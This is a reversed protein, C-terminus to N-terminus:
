PARVILKIRPRKPLPAAEDSGSPRDSGSQGSGRDSNDTEAAEDRKRKVASRTERTSAGLSTPAKVAGRRSVTATQKAHSSKLKKTSEPAKARSNASAAKGKQCKAKGGAAMLGRQAGEERQAAAIVYEWKRPKPPAPNPDPKFPKMDTKLGDVSSWYHLNPDLEYQSINTPREARPLSSPLSPRGHHTGRYPQGSVTRYLRYDAPDAIYNVHRSVREGNHNNELPGIGANFRVPELLLRLRRQVSRHTKGTPSGESESASPIDDQIHTEEANANTNADEHKDNSHSTSEHEEDDPLRQQVQSVQNDAPFAPFQDRSSQWCHLRHLSRSSQRARLNYGHDARETEQNIGTGQLHIQSKSAQLLVENHINFLIHAAELARPSYHATTDDANPTAKNGEIGGGDDSRESNAAESERTMRDSERRAASQERSEQLRKRAEEAIPDNPLLGPRRQAAATSGYTVTCNSLIAEAIERMGMGPLRKTKSPATSTQERFPRVLQIQDLAIPSMEAEPFARIQALINGGFSAFQAVIATMLADPIRLGTQITLVDRIHQYSGSTGARWDRDLLYLARRYLWAPITEGAASPSTCPANRPDKLLSLDM